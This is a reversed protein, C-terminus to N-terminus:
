IDGMIVALLMDDLDEASIKKDDVASSPKKPLYILYEIKDGENRVEM